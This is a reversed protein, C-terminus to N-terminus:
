RAAVIRELTALFRDNEQPLGVSIRLFDDLGYSALARVIVGQELLARHVGRADPLAFAIFNTASPLPDFGMQRLAADLRQRESRTLEVTRRLFADDDLAAAAAALALANVNFPQRVRNLLSAVEPHMLGFGVRLGALGYAKSCTRALLLNPYRALLALSDPRADPDVFDIYAEDLLVLVDDPVADLFGALADAELLSGTPNNPNTVFVVRTDARIAAQMADLDLGYRRAPVEICTAGAARSMLAYEAFAYQSHLCSAGPHLFTRAVLEIIDDSGNGLVIQDTGVGFKRAITSKLVFGNSDPYRALSTVAAELADRARPSMGLPNENSALKIITKPDIGLERALEEIPKGAQYPDIARIHDPACQALKM